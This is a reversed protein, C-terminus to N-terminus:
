GVEEWPEPGGRIVDLHEPKVSRLRGTTAYVQAPTLEPLLSEGLGDRVFFANFGLSHVGVLRYGRPRLLDVFARLSAGCKYPRATLDLRYDPRYSMSVAAEPGCLANFELVIVRPKVVTLARLVWYDNGDLDLSLLDIEGRSGRRGAVDNVNEATVWADDFAPPSLHTNRAAAYFARGRAVLGPNGDVLLGQWGHHVILNAAHCEIGDGACIEVIRRSTTGIVSFLYLLIGDEGGQSFVRFETDALPVSVGERALRRYELILQKQILQVSPADASEPM